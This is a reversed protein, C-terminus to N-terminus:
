YANTALNTLVVACWKFSYVCALFYVIQDRVLIRILRATNMGLQAKWLAVAKYLAM